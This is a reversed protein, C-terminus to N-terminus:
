LRYNLVLKNEFIHNGRLIHFLEAHGEVKIRYETLRRGTRLYLEACPVRCSSVSLEKADGYIMQAVKSGRSIKQMAYSIGYISSEYGCKECEFRINILM